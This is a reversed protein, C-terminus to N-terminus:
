PVLRELLLLLVVFLVSAGGSATIAVPEPNPKMSSGLQVFPDLSPDTPQLELM